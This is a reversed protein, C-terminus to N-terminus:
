KPMKWFFFILYPANKIYYGFLGIYYGVRKNWGLDCNSLTTYMSSKHLESECLVKLTQFLSGTGLHGHRYLRSIDLFLILTERFNSFHFYLIKPWKPKKKKDQFWTKRLFDFIYMLKWINEIVWCNLDLPEISLNHQM